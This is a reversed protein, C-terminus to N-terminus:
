FLGAIEDDTIATISELAILRGDVEALAGAAENIHSALAAIDGDVRESLINLDSTITNISDTHNSVTTQLEAAGEKHAGIWEEVEKLTDFDSEAGAVIAAVAAASADAALKEHDIAELKVVREDMAANFDAATGAADYNVALGDAYAKAAAEAADAAGAADYNVALSDAYAKAAAEAAAAAGATEYDGKVQYLSEADAKADALAQAATADAHDKANQEATAAAADMEDRLTTALTERANTEDSILGRVETDDYKDASKLFTGDVYEISAKLDINGQLETKLADDAAIYADHDIAKLTAVDGEVATMRGDMATNLGDAHVKANQEATAAASDAHAKAAAEAAKVSGEGDGNLTAIATVNANVKDVVAVLGNEGGLNKLDDITGELTSVREAVGAIDEANKAVSADIAKLKNAVEVLSMLTVSDELSELDGIIGNIRGELEEDKADLSGQTEVIDAISSYIDDIIEAVSKDDSGEFELSGIKNTLAAIADALVKDGSAIFDKILGDYKRLGDLSLYKNTIVESM